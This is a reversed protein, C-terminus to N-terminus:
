EVIITTQSLRLSRLRVAAWIISAGILLMLIGGLVAVVKLSFEPWVLTVVGGLLVIVAPVWLAPNGGGAIRLGLVLWLAGVFILGVGVFTVLASVTFDSFIISLLGAVILLVGGLTSSVSPQLTVLLALGNAILASGFLVVLIWSAAVFPWILLGFGAAMVLVGVILPIWWPFRRTTVQTFPTLAYM